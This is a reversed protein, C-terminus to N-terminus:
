LDRICRVSFGHYSGWQGISVYNVGLYIAWANYTDSESSSWWYGYEGINGFAGRHGKLGGPLATFGSENTADTNPRAWHVSGTEKLKVASVKEGGLYTILTKWEEDSPLHWGVPSVNKATEWNYLYGYIAAYNANDDYAWCGDGTNYALNEAMWTQDGIRITQYTKGDRADTFFTGSQPHQQQTPHEAKAIEQERYYNYYLLSGILILIIIVIIFIIFGKLSKHKGTSPPKKKEIRDDIKDKRQENNVIPEKQSAPPEQIINKPFPPTKPPINKSVVTKPVVEIEKGLAKAWTTIAWNASEEALGTNNSLGDRLRKFQHTDLNNGSTNFITVPIKEKHAIMLINIEKRSEPCLDLLLGNLKTSDSLIVLGYKNFLGQLIDVPRNNM